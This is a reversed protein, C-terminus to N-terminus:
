VPVAKKRQRRKKRRSPEAVKVELLGKGAVSAKEAAATAAVLEEAAQARAAQAKAKVRAAEEEAMALVKAAEKEAAEKEAAEKALAALQAAAEEAKKAAAVREAEKEAAAAKEATEEEAMKKALTAQAAAEEEAKKAAAVRAAENEAAAKEAAKKALAAEEMATKVAAATAAATVAAQETIAALSAGAAKLEAAAREAAAKEAVAKEAAKKVAAAKEAAAEAAAVEAHVEAQRASASAVGPTGMEFSPSPGAPEHVALEHAPQDAGGFGPLKPLRLSPMKLKPLSLSPLPAAEQEGGEEAGGQGDQAALATGGAVTVAVAAAAFLTTPWSKAEPRTQEVTEVVPAINPAAPAAQLIPEAEPEPFAPSVVVPPPAKKPLTVRYPAVVRQKITELVTPGAVGDLSTPSTVAITVLASAVLVSAASSPGGWLDGLPATPRGPRMSLPVRAAAQSSLAPTLIGTATRTSTAPPFLWANSAAGGVTLIRTPNPGSGSRFPKRQNFLGSSRAEPPVLAASSLVALALAFM